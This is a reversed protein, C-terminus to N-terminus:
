WGGEGGGGAGLELLAVAVDLALARGPEVVELEYAGGFGRQAEM